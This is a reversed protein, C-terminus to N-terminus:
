RTHPQPQGLYSISVSYQLEAAKAAKQEFIMSLTRPILGRDEYRDPGGTITFTKGSGTQGQQSCSLLAALCRPRVRTLSCLLSLLASPSCQRCPPARSVRARGIVTQRVYAFITGNFGQLVNEVVPKGIGEFVQEQTATDDFIRNMKFSYLEKKNNIVNGGSSNADRPVHFDVGRRDSCLPAFCRM